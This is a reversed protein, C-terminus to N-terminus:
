MGLYKSYLSKASGPDNTGAIIARGDPFVTFEYNEIRFKMMFDNNNVDTTSSLRQALKELDIKEKNRRSVQVANRGCLLTTLTGDEANLFEYNHSKCTPCDNSKILDGIDLKKFKINWVDIELLSRNISKLDNVLIKIAETVQVSAIIGAITGIVGATDCTPFAGAQPLKDFVCRLCPTVSPIINMTLGKSGICAGYVWPVNNKVCYDNILYRTDFNDTGDLIIDADKALEEINTYNIDSVIGEIKVNSNIKRLKRQAAIAKPLGESIDNEDFLIQRQLNSEEIFDRDVIRLNGIGARVLYGASVSGLAGCGVLLVKSKLLEKQREEGIHHFLIQRSYRELQKNM